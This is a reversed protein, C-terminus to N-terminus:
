PRKSWLFIILTGGALGLILDEVSASIVVALVTGTILSMAVTFINKRTM